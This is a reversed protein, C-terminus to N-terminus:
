ESYSLALERMAVMADHKRSIERDAVPSSPTFRAVRDFQDIQVALPYNLLNDFCTM